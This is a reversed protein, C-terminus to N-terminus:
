EKKAGNIPMLFIFRSGEGVNSEIWVKGGHCEIITKVIVLGLGTGGVKSSSELQQFKEFLKPIDEPKIGPGTDEVTIRVTNAQLDGKVLVKVAGKETFKIANGVLNYLVQLMRDKDFMVPGLAPDIECSLGIGKARAVSEQPVLSEAVTQNLDGPQIKMLIRGSEMKSLDLIDNILRNLRDVNAKARGLFDSQGSTLPGPTGSLIIDLAMKISALPTRLEHSVTSTFEKQKDYLKQLDTNAQILRANAARTEDFLKRNEVILDHNEIAKRVTARIDEVNWPKTLFRYVGGQNVAEEAAQMDAHGTLLIRMVDPYKEKVDKLFQVGSVGPMRQDSIVVKIKERSLIEWAQGMQTTTVLKYPETLFHRQLTALINEEDDIALVHIPKIM